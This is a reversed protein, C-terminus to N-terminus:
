AAALYSRGEMAERMEDLPVPRLYHRSTVALDSHGLIQQVVRLDARDAVDSACTRRLAHASRGDLARVKVGALRM